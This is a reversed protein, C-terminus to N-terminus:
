ADIEANNENYNPHYTTLDSINNTLTEWSGLTLLNPSKLKSIRTAYLIEESLEEIITRDAYAVVPAKAGAPAEDDAYDYMGDPEGATENWNRHLRNLDTVASEFVDVAKFYEPTGVTVKYLENKADNVVKIAVAQEETIVVDSM